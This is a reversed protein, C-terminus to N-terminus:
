IDRKINPSELGYNKKADMKKLGWSLLVAVVGFVAFIGMPLTYDGAGLNEADVAFEGIVWGILMPVLMLGINQVYFILAYATGLQKQPIIKPVSPWMASPVLSFSIGLLIMNAIAFWASDIMPLAFFIHVVLLLASGIMMLSAGKGVRDYLSGFLPTLLITGFPLLSPITGAWESSVGYKNIMMNTAYKLFPFVGSYFLLCLFAILWFGKSQFVAKIDSLKFGDEDDAAGAMREQKDLRYDMIGYAIFFMLGICLGFVGFLVPMSIDGFSSAIGASFTLAAATGIRAVAVQLGLALALEKGTFWKVVAKSVTIGCIEAGMGFIGFGVGAILVRANIGMIPAADMPFADSFAYYKIFTGVVMLACSLVGTLRIGLKDLVIGGLFLMFLFVNFWGYAGTFLGYESPTWGLGGGEQAKLIITELPAMVDTIFYACMMTVSVLALVSWRAAASDRLSKQLKEVM